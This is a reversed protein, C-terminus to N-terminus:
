KESFFQNKFFPILLVIVLLVGLTGGLFYVSTFISPTGAGVVAKGPAFAEAGSLSFSAKPRAFHVSYAAVAMAAGSFISLWWGIEKKMAIYYIAFFLTILVMVMIPQSFRLIGIAPDLIAETKGGQYLGRLGHESFAFAQTGIMGLLTLPVFLAWMEKGKEQLIILLWFAVLGVVFAYFSPAFVGKRVMYGAFSSVYFSGIPMTALSVLAVPFAWKKNKLFGYVVAALLVVGAYVTIGLWGFSVTSRLSVVPNMPATAGETMGKLFMNTNATVLGPNIFILFLGVAAVIAAQIKRTVDNM